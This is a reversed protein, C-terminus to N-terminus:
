RDHTPEQLSIPDCLTMKCSCEDDWRVSPDLPEDILKTAYRRFEAEHVRVLKAVGEAGEEREGDVQGM